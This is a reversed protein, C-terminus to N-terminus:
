PLSGADLYIASDGKDYLYIKESDSTVKFYYDEMVQITMLPDDNISSIDRYKARINTVWVWNKEIWFVVNIRLDENIEYETKEPRVVGFPIGILGPYTPLYKEVPTGTLPKSVRVAIDNSTSKGGKTKKTGKVKSVKKNKGGGRKIAEQYVKDKQLNNKEYFAVVTRPGLIGDPKVGIAEQMNYVADVFEESDPKVGPKKYFQLPDWKIWKIYLKNNRKAKEYDINREKPKSKPVEGKEINASATELELKGSAPDRAAEIMQKIEEPSKKSKQILEVLKKLDEKTVQQGKEKGFVDKLDKLIEAEFEKEWEKRIKANKPNNPDLKGLNGGIKGSGSGRTRKRCAGEAQAIFPKLPTKELTEILFNHLSDGVIADMIKWAAPEAIEEKFYDTRTLLNLGASIGLQAVLGWLCGLGPPTGCSVIQVGIRVATVVDSLIEGWQQVTGVTETFSSIKKEHKSYEKELQNRFTIFDNHLTELEDTLAEKPDDLVSSYKKFIANKIGDICGSFGNFANVLMKKFIEISSSIIIRVAKKKWGEFSGAKKVFDKSKDRFGEFKKKMKKFFVLLKEFASGFKFRLRGLIKGKLGSWFEISKVNKLFTRHAQSIPRGLKKDIEQKTEIAEILKEEKKLFAKAGASSKSVRCSKGLPVQKGTAWKCRKQEWKEAKNDWKDKKSQVVLANSTNLSTSINKAQTNFRLQNQRNPLFKGSVMRPTSSTSGTKLDNILKNVEERKEEATKAKAEDDGPFPHPLHFYVYLGNGRRYIWIRQKRNRFVLRSSSDKKDDFKSYDILDPIALKSLPAGEISSHTKQDSDIYVRKAFAEFGKIYNELQFTGLELKTKSKRFSGPILPKLEGVWFFSPFNKEWKGSSCVPGQNPPKPGFSKKIPAKIYRYEGDKSPCDTASPEKKGYKFARVGAVRKQPSKSKYLDAFGVINIKEDRENMARDTAQGGPIPAETVLTPNVRRLEAEIHSHAWNGYYGKEEDLLRQIPIDKVSSTPLTKTNTQQIVHALEHAILQNGKPTGPRYQGSAFYLDNGTTFAHSRLIHNMKNAEGDTHIRVKSFDKSFRDEMFRRTPGALLSGSGKRNVLRSELSESSESSPPTISKTHVKETDQKEEKIPQAQLEEECESCVRQVVPSRVPRTIAAVPSRLDPMRMVQEAVRDAEQEYKDNPQGIRLKAQIRPSGLSRVAIEGFSHGTFPSKSQKRTNIAIPPIHGPLAKAQIREEEEGEDETAEVQRQVLPSIQYSVPKTQVTEEEKEETPEIQRQILPTIQSALPKMQLTDEEEEESDVGQRQIVPKMLYAIAKAQMMKEEDEGEELPQRQLEEECDSCMRQVVPYRVPRTIAAAPSRPDPMRMVQEAVRDAEQEYKDNPQGIKLKAQIPLVSVQGFSHSVPTLDSPPPTPAPQGSTSLQKEATSSITEEEVRDQYRQKLFSSEEPKFGPTLTSSNKGDVQVRDSGM